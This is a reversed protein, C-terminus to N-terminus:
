LILMADGYAFLRYGEKVATRYAKMILEPGALAAGVLLSPSNPPHFNTIMSQVIRFEYPPYIFRDTWGRTPKVVGVSLASSELARVVSCGVAYVRKRHRLARNIAEAAQPSVDFYESSMTHKSLDEVDITEFTGAGIHVTIPILQVGKQLLKQVLERTFHLGATPPALSGIKEPNAFITQYWEKDGEEPQRQVYSPLIVSGLREMVKYLDGTYSFRVIRGRSTTNDIIEAYFRNNDFYVKNGIRVKRAPEVLAEWINGERSLERALIVEIPAHTREKKGILRAPYVWTDNVVICDGKQLYEVIDHFTRHELEGSARHVVLLRAGDRPDAPFKAVAQKPYTYRFASLKTRLLM